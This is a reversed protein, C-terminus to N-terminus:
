PQRHPILSTLSAGSRARYHIILLVVDVLKETRSQAQQYNCDLLGLQHFVKRNNAGNLCGKALAVLESQWLGEQQQMAYEVAYQVSAKQHTAEGGYTFWSQDSVAMILDLVWVNDDTILKPTLKMPGAQNRLKRLEEKHDDQDSPLVPRPGDDEDTSTNFHHELVMKLAWLQGTYGGSTESIGHYSKACDNFSFWRMLKCLPGKNVFSPMQPLAEWLKM